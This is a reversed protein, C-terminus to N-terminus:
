DVQTATITGTITVSVASDASSVGLTTDNTDTADDTYYAWQWYVTTTASGGIALSEGSLSLSSIDSYWTQGDTSYQLPVTDGATQELTISYKATVDSANTVALAFSGSTGPAIMESTVDSETSGDSDNITDFLNFSITAGDVAIDNDNVIISWKAVTVTDTGSASSTYKSYTGSVAILAIAVILLLVLIFKVLKKDNKM